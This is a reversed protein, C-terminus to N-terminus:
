SVDDHIDVNEDESEDDLTERSVDANVADTRYEVWIDLGFLKNIRKCADQRANLNIARMVAVQDNNASVEDAVLREKKDQNSNNIGFLSMADSHVRTRLIPINIHIMPDIAVDFASISSSDFLENVFIVHQGEDIQRNVNAMSLKQSESSAVLKPYRSNHANVEITIDLDALKSAYIMAYDIDPTRLYNAWIPVCEPDVSTPVGEVDEFREESSLTRSVFRNGLVRFKSFNDYMNITGSGNGRLALHGLSEHEFFIALANYFLTYELFRVDVTDPMNQWEFRNMAMETFTKMHMRTLAGVRNEAPNSAVRRGGRRHLDYYEQSVWNGAAGM